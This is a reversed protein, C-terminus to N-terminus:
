GKSDMMGDKCSTVPLGDEITYYTFQGSQAISANITLFFLISMIFPNRNEM